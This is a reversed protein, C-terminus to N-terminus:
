KLVRTTVIASLLGVVGSFGFAVSSGYMTWLFGAIVTAPLSAFSVLSNCLGLCTARM